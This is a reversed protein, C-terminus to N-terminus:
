GVCASCTGTYIDRKAAGNRLTSPEIERPHVYRGCSDCRGTVNFHGPIIWLRDALPSFCEDCLVGRREPYARLKVTKLALEEHGCKDCRM